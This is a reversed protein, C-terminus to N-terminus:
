IEKEISISDRQIQQQKLGETLKKFYREVDIVTTESSIPMRLIVVKKPYRDSNYKLDFSRKEFKEDLSNEIEDSLDKNFIDISDGKIFWVIREGVNIGENNKIQELSFLTEKNEDSLNMFNIMIWAYGRGASEYTPANLLLRKGEVDERELAREGEQLLNNRNASSMVTEIGKSKLEKCAKRLPEEVIQDIIDNTSNEKILNIGFGEIPLIESIKKNPRVMSEIRTIFENKM